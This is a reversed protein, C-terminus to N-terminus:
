GLNHKKKHDAPTMQRLNGIDNNLKNGDVHDIQNGPKISGKHKKYWWIHFFGGKKEPYKLNNKFRIYGNDMVFEHGYRRMYSGLIKDVIKHEREALIDTEKIREEREIKTVDHDSAEKKIKHLRKQVNRIEDSLKKTKIDYIFIRLYYLGPFLLAIVIAVRIAIGNTSDLCKGNEFRDSKCETECVYSAGVDVTSPEGCCVVGNDGYLCEWECVYAEGVLKVSPELCSTDNCNKLGEPCGGDEAGCVGAINCTGIGCEINLTCSDGDGLCEKGNPCVECITREKEVSITESSIINPEIFEYRTLKHILPAKFVVFNNPSITHNHTFYGVKGYRPENTYFTANVSIPIDLNNNIKINGNLTGDIEFTILESLNLNRGIEDGNYYFVEEDESYNEIGTYQCDLASVSNIIFLSVFIIFLVKRM